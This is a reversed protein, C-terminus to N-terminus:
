CFSGLSHLGPVICVLKSCFSEGPFLLPFLSASLKVPLVLAIPAYPTARDSDQATFNAFAQAVEGLPSLSYVGAATLNQYFL